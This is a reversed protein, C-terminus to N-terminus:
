VSPQEREIKGFLDKFVIASGYHGSLHFARNQLGYFVSVVSTSLSGRM